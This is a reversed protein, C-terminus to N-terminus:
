LTCPDESRLLALVDDPNYLEIKNEAWYVIFHGNSYTNAPSHQLVKDPNNTNAALIEARRAPMESFVRNYESIMFKHFKLPFDEISALFPIDIVM